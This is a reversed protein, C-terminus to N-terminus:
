IDGPGGDFIELFGILYRWSVSSIDRNCWHFIEQVSFFYGLSVSSIDEPFRQFIELFGIFYKLSVWSIDGPFRHFRWSVFRISGACGDSIELVGILYRL